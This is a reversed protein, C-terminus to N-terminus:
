AAVEEKNLVERVGKDNPAGVVGMEELKEMIRAAKDPGQKLRRQIMATSARGMNEVLDKATVALVHIQDAEVAQDREGVDLPLELQSKRGRAYNEAELQLKELAKVFAEGLEPAGGKSEEPKYPTNFCLKSGDDFAKQCSIVAGMVENKYSFNITTIALTKGYVNDFSLMELVHPKLATIAKTFAKEPQDYSKVSVEDVKGDPRERHWVVEAQDKHYRVRLIRM